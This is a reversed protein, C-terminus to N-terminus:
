EYSVEDGLSNYIGKIVPKNEKLGYVLAVNSRTVFIQFRFSMIVTDNVECKESLGFHYDISEDTAPIVEVMKSDELSKGVLANKVHSRRYHGGGYCYALGDFNHSVESLYVVCPVEETTTHASLPTTGTLGHGPEVSNIPYNGMERITEVSSTSPANVNEITIGMKEFMEKAKLVTKLNNTPLIKGAQENYLFCPFSTVGKIVVNSLKNVEEVLNELESLYFGATQGSYIMDADDTVRIMLKITKNSNKACENLDKIKELSYVTFYDCDYDVLKQLVSKPAQVLHGVNSIHIGNKMMQLAEKFDVVVAGKYGMKMLEKGIMPNRGIQKLMFYADMHNKQAELLIKRSNELLTDMDIIYTDPLLKGSQHLTFAADILPKNLQMVQNLFM